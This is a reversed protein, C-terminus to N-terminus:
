SNYDGIMWNFGGRRGSSAGTDCRLVPAPANRRQITQLSTRALAYSAPAMNTQHPYHAAIRAALNFTIAEEYGPPLTVTDAVTEFSPLMQWTYLELQYTTLPQGWLYITSLPYGGDNYLKTPITNPIDQIRIARWEHDDLVKLHQRIAPNSSIIINAFKIEQPRAADFNADLGPGGITYSKQGAVLGYVAILTTYIKLPDCNWSGIMRNLLQLAEAQQAANPGRGPALTIGAIRLASQILELAPVGPTGVGGASGGWTSGGFTTQSM